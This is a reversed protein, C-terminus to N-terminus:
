RDTVGDDRRMVSTEPGLRVGFPACNKPQGQWDSGGALPDISGIRFADIIGAFGGLISCLVFNAAKVARVRVGIEAAGLLNGGTAITHLGFRTRTLVLQLAIAIVLAWAM